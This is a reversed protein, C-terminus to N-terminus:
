GWCVAQLMEEVRRRIEERGVAKGRRVTVGVCKGLELLGVWEPVMEALLRVCRVADEKSIPNRLSMQLHQVLTPMTFSQVQMQQKPKESGSLRETCGTAAGATLLELVPVVEELRQLASKRALAAPSPAPPLASQILEKARIRSLLSDSRSAALKPRLNSVDRAISPNSSSSSKQAKIAGAKLDELRRQGKVLLPALKSLSDCATIPLLPLTAIFIEVSVSPGNSTLYKQWQQELNNTFLTHLKEEHIPRKHISPNNIAEALELCIKGRGYDVLTLTRAGSTPVTQSSQACQAIALIRRTDNVEVSRKRWIASVSSNLVRLDVPTLCGHHAYHLSLASLFSSHLDILDQLEEPLKGERGCIPSSSRTSAPSTPPSNLHSPPPSSSRTSPSSSRLSFCELISRAGKTPTETPGIQLRATKQPTAQKVPRITATPPCADAQFNSTAVLDDSSRQAAKTPLEPSDQSPEEAAAVEISDDRRKKSSEHLEHANSEAEIAKRKGLIQVDSQAKSIRGFAQIGRQQASKASRGTAGAAVNIKRKTTPMTVAKLPRSKSVFAPAFTMISTADSPPLRSASVSAVAV